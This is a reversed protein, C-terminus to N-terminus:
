EDVRVKTGHWLTIYSGRHTPSKSSVVGVREILGWQSAQVFLHGMLKPFKPHPGIADTVDNASFDVDDAIFRRIAMVGKHSWTMSM